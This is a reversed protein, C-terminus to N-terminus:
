SAIPLLFFYLFVLKEVPVELFLFNFKKIDPGNEESM